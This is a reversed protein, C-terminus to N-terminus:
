ARRLRARAPIKALRVHRAIAKAPPTTASEATAIVLMALALPNTVAYRWFLRKPDHALRHLWELGARQMWGPARPYDGAIYNFCGGCTVIWAANLRHQNRSAFEYELPVGLGMWIVDAGSENIAQCIQDEEDRSFYGYRRGVIELGPYLKSLKEACNRNVEETAGFLFFKLGHEVAARSADHIFDTTASREAVPTSTMLRSAFVLAQGDAHVINAAEFRRRFESDIAALAIAHGNAAFVTRAIRGPWRRADLCDEVMKDALESRSLRVTRLGGIVVEPLSDNAVATQVPFGAASKAIPLADM